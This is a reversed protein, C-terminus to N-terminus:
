VLTPVQGRPNIDLYAPAKLAGSASDIRESRYPLQKMALTLMVRWSPPSGSVWYLTLDSLDGSTM